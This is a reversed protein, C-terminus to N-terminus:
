LFHTNIGRITVSSLSYSMNPEIRVKHVVFSTQDVWLVSNGAQIGAGFYRTTGNELLEHDNIEVDYM